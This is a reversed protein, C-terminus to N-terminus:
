KLIIATINIKFSNMIPHIIKLSDIKINIQYKARKSGCGGGGGGGGRRSERVGPLGSGGV